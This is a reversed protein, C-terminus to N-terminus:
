TLDLKQTDYSKIVILNTIIKDKELKSNSFFFRQIKKFVKRFNYQKM